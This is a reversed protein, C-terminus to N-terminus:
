GQPLKQIPQQKELSGSLAFIPIRKEKGKLPMTGLNDCKFHDKLEEHAWETILIRGGVARGMLRAATNVTDGLVNFERRGRPEGIEAAFCPGRSLGVQCGIEVKKGGVVPPDLAHIIDRIAMAAEAARATDDTHATPVGFFIMIDSGALHYTVKKLVGGRAEVAANILAFLQSFSSVIGAEEVEQAHDVAEPLGILNVFLVTPYVFDPPIERKAANEVLLNLIPDPIYAALPEVVGVSREIEAVLAEVSRDLLVASAMRRGTASIDFEGLQSTSIDDVLLMHGPSGEEFHFLDKIREYAEMTVNVRGRQGAGEAQKARQVANGLLVHEMRRPTGIDATFFRGTHIGVRMGLSFAGQETEINDFKAMARQMRLGARVAQATDNRRQHPPYQVLMADGTFELLNGGSKSTIELMESFYSTLTNLLTRAGEKGRAANAEMLPTFGTLDTFMLTGEQWEHREEGPHPQSEAVQRPVYDYLIRQLTRLHEFVRMLTEPSPNVWAAAYLDAPLLARLRPEISSLPYAVRATPTSLSVPTPEIKKIKSAM